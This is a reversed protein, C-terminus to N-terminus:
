RREEKEIARALEDESDYGEYRYGDIITEDMEKRWYPHASLDRLEYTAGDNESEFQSREDLEEKALQGAKYFWVTTPRWWDKRPYCYCGTSVVKEVAKRADEEDLRRM